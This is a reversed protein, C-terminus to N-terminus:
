STTSSGQSITSADRVESSATGASVRPLIRAPISSDSTSSSEKTRSRSVGSGLGSPVKAASDGVNVASSSSDSTACSLSKQLAILFILGSRRGSLLFRSLTISATRALDSCASSARYGVSTASSSRRSLSPPRPWRRLIAISTRIPSFFSKCSALFKRLPCCSPPDSGLLRAM